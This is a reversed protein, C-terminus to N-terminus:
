PSKRDYNDKDLLLSGCFDLIYEGVVFTEVILVFSRVDDVVFMSIEEWDLILLRMTWSRRDVDNDVFDGM